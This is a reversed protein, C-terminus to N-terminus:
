SLYLMGALTVPDMALHGIDGGGFGPGSQGTPLSPNTYDRSKDNNYKVNLNTLKSFGVRLLNSNPTQPGFMPSGDLGQKAAVAVPTAEFQILAQFSQNKQFTVIKTVKGYRSFLQFFHDVTVPYVLQDVVVRLVPTETASEDGHTTFSNGNMSSGGDSAKIQQHNSFQCYVTRGRVTPSPHQQWYSVMCQASSLDSFEVMAQNKGRLLLLNAVKGFPLALNMLDSEHADPPINRVHVVRSPSGNNNNNNVSSTNDDLNNNSGNMTNGNTDKTEESEIKAKKNTDLSTNMLPDSSSASSISLSVEESGRKTM